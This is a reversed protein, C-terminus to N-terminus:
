NVQIKFLFLIKQDILYKQSSDMDSIILLRNQSISRKESEAQSKGSKDNM